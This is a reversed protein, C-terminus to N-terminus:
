TIYVWHPQKKIVQITTLTLIPVSGRWGRSEGGGGGIGRWKGEM